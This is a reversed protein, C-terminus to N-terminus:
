RVRVPAATRGPSLDHEDLCRGTPVQARRAGEALVPAVDSAAVGYIVEVRQGLGTAVVLGVVRGDAAVIPGGSNGAQVRGRVALVPVETLPGDGVPHTTYRGVRDVRAPTTRRPGGRPFGIVAASSGHVIERALPLAPLQAIVPDDVALVAVDDIPDFATVRALVPREDPGTAVYTSGQGAVVHANTVLLGPAGVWASGTVLEDCAVGQVFLVSRAAAAVGPSRVSAPDPAEALVLPGNLGPVLGSRLVVTGLSGQPPLGGVLARGVVSGRVASVVAADSPLVSAVAAIFWAMVVAVGVNLAAGLSRDVIRAGDGLLREVVAGVQEVRLAFPILGLLGGAMCGLAVPPTGVAAAIAGGPLAAICFVLTATLSVVIGRRWGLVGAGVVLAVLLLDIM